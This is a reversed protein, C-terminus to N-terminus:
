TEVLVVVVVQEVPAAARERKKERAVLVRISSAVPSRTWRNVWGVRLVREWWESSRLFVWCGGAVLGVLFCVEQKVCPL